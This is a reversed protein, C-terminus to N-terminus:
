GQYCHSYDLSTSNLTVASNVVANTFGLQRCISDAVHSALPFDSSNQNIGRWESYAWIFVVGTSVSCNGTQFDKPPCLYVQGKYPLSTADTLAEEINFLINYCYYNHILRYYDTNIQILYCYDPASAPSNVPSPIWLIMCLTCACFTSWAWIRCIVIHSADIGLCFFLPEKM